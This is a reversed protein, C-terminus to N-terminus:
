LVQEQGLPAGEALPQAVTTVAQSPGQQNASQDRVRSQAVAAKTATAVPKNDSQLEKEQAASLHFSEQLTTLKVHSAKHATTGGAPAAHSNRKSGLTVGVGPRVHPMTSRRHESRGVQSIGAHSMTSPRRSQSRRKAAARSLAAQRQSVFFEDGTDGMVEAGQGSETAQRSASWSLSHGRARPGFEDMKWMLNSRALIVEIESFIPRKDPDMDWCRRMLKTYLPPFSDPVSPRLGSVIKSLLSFTSLGTNESYPRTRARLTWMIIGFSFVDIKTSYQGRRTDSHLEPAAFVPTGVNTTMELSGDHAKSEQRLGRFDRSQGFDCIKCTGHRDLLVNGPKLNWANLSTLILM